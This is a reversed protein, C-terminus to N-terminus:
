KIKSEILYTMLQENGKAAIQGTGKKFFLDYVTVKDKDRNTLQSARIQLLNGFKGKPTELVATISIIEYKWSNDAENWIKGIELDKPISISEAKTKSDFSYITKDEIRTYDESKNGWSYTRVIKFYKKGNIKINAKTVKVTQTNSSNVYQFIWTNGKSIPNYSENTSDSLKSSTRCGYITISLILVLLKKTM